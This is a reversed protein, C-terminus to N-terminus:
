GKLVALAYATSYWRDHKFRSVLFYRVMVKDELKYHKLIADFQFKKCVLNVKRKNDHGVQITISCFKEGNNLECIVGRIESFVRQENEKTLDNKM